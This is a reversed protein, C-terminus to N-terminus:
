ARKARQYVDSPRKEGINSHRREYNCYEMYDKVGRYLETGNSYAKLYIDEYKISRWFREIFVNDIARGKGDMSLEIESDVVYGAFVESTFQSGQDTNIIEPKSHQKVAAKVIDRCWEADMTNSLSWGVIFRSHLDIIAVLYMFGHEVPIYTIDIDWAQNNRTITLNRLLYPHVKNEPCPKSTHSGPAIARLEMLNYLRRIRKVNVLRCCDHRLYATMAGVGTFPPRSYKEDMLKM